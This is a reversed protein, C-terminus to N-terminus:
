IIESEEKPLRVYFTTGKGVESEFRISGNIKELFEKCLNLGLGTGKENNTGITSHKIGVNFIKDKDEKKIGIGSDAISIEVFDKAETAGITIKGGEPTFKIANSLLNRVVTSLTEADSFVNIEQNSTNQLKINKESLAQTHLESEKTLLDSINIRETCIRMNETQLRAWSLLNELLKAVNGSSIKLTDIHQKKEEDTFKYYYESLFQSLNNFSYVPGKLDHSIISFLKTKTDNLTALDKNATAIQINKNKLLKNDRSKLKYSVGSVISILVIAGILLYVFQGKAKSIKEINRRDQDKIKIETAHKLRENFANLSDIQKSKKLTDIKLKNISNIQRLIEMAKKNLAEKLKLESLEKEIKQNEAAKEELMKNGFSVVLKNISDNIAVAIKGSAHALKYNGLNEQIESQLLNNKAYDMPRIKPNNIKTGSDLSKIAVEKLKVSEEKSITPDNAKMNLVKGETYFCDAMGQKDQGVTFSEKAAKVYQISADNDVGAYAEALGFQALGMLRKDNAKTSNELAVKFYKIATENDGLKKYISGIICSNKNADRKRKVTIKISKDVYNLSLISDNPERLKVDAFRTSHIDALLLYDKGIAEKFKYKTDFALVKEAMMIANNYSKTALFISAEERNVNGIKELQEKEKYKELAKQFYKNAIFLEVEGMDKHVMGLEYYTDGIEEILNGDEYRKLAENYNDRAKFKDGKESYCNAINSYCDAKNVPDTFRKVAKHYYILASDFQYQAMYCGGIRHEIHPIMDKKASESLVLAQNYFDIAENYPTYDDESGSNENVEGMRYLSSAEFSKDDIAKAIRNAEKAYFLSSDRNGITEFGESLKFCAEFKETNGKANALKKRQEEINSLTRTSIHNDGLIKTNEAYNGYIVFLGIGIVSLILILRRKM